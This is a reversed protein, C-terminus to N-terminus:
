TDAHDAGSLGAKVPSAGTRTGGVKRDALGWWKKTMADGPHTGGITMAAAKANGSEPRAHYDM